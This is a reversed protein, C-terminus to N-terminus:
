FDMNPVDANVAVPYDSYNNFSRRSIGPTNAQRDASNNDPDQTLVSEPKGDGAM